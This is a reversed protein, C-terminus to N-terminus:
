VPKSDASPLLRGVLTLRSSRYPFLMNLVPLRSIVVFDTTSDASEIRSGIRSCKESFQGTPVPRSGHSIALYNEIAWLWARSSLALNGGCNLYRRWVADCESGIKHLYCMCKVWGGVGKLLIKHDFLTWLVSSSTSTYWNYKINVKVRYFLDLARLKANHRIIPWKRGISLSLM